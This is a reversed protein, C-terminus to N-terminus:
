TLLVLYKGDVKIFIRLFLNSARKGLGLFNDDYKIVGECSIGKQIDRYLLTNDLM